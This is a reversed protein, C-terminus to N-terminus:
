SASRDRVVYFASVISESRDVLNFHERLHRTLKAHNFGVHHGDWRPELHETQYLLSSRLVEGWTLEDHGRRTVRQVTHKLLMGPGTMKPVSIIICAGPRLLRFCERLFAVKTGWMDPQSGVHEMTELCYMLDHPGGIRELLEATGMDRNCHVRVNDLHMARALREAAEAYAPTYDVASVREYWRSLSPLFVGDASGMDIVTRAGPAHRGALALAREFRARKVGVVPGRGMYNKLMYVHEHGLLAADPVV